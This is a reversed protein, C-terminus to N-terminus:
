KRSRELIRVFGNNADVEIVDNDRLIKTAIKTGIICPTKMERAVIAAHSLIGGEDTVFAKTKRMWPVFDPITHTAVLIDGKQIKKIDNPKVVIKVIGSVKGPYAIEGKIIKEKKEAEKEFFVKKITRFDHGVYKKFAKDIEKEGVFLCPKRHFGILILYGKRRFSIAKKVNFSMKKKILCNLERPSLYKISNLNISLHKSIRKYFLGGLYGLRSFENQLHVRINNLDRIIELLSKTAQPAVIKKTTKKEKKLKQEIVRRGLSLINNFDELIKNKTLAPQLDIYATIHIFNRRILELVRKTDRNIRPPKSHKSYLSKALKLLEKEYLNQDSEINAAAVLPIKEKSFGTKIIKQTVYDDVWRALLFYPALYQISKVYLNNLEILHKSDFNKNAILNKIKILSEKFLMHDINFNKIVKKAFDLNETKKQIRALDKKNFFSSYLNKDGYIIIRPIKINGLLTYWLNKRSSMWLADIWAVLFSVQMRAFGFQWKNKLDNIKRKEM